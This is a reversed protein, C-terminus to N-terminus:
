MFCKPNLTDPYVKELSQPNQFEFSGDEEMEFCLRSLGESLIITEGDKFNKIKGSIINLLIEKRELCPVELSIVEGANAFVVGNRSFFVEDSAEFAGVKSDGCKYSLECSVEFEYETRSDFIRDVIELECIKSGGFIRSDKSVSFNIQVNTKGEAPLIVDCSTKTVDIFSGPKINCSLPLDYESDNQFVIEAKHSKYPSVVISDCLEADFPAEGLIKKLMITEGKM